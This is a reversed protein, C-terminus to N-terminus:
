YLDVPVDVVDGRELPLDTVAGQAAPAPFPGISHGCRLIRLEGPRAGNALGGARQLASFVTIGPEFPMAGPLKIGGFVQVRLPAAVNCPAAPSAAVMPVPNNCAAALVALAAVPLTIRM